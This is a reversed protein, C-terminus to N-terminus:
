NQKLALVTLSSYMDVAVAQGGLTHTGSVHFLESSRSCTGPRGCRM